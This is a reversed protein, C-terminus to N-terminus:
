QAPEDPGGASPQCGLWTVGQATIRAPEAQFSPPPPPAHTVSAPWLAWILTISAQPRFQALFSQLLAVFALRTYAPNVWVSRQAEIIIGPPQHDAYGVRYSCGALQDDAFMTEALWAQEAQTLSTGAQGAGYALSETKRLKNM